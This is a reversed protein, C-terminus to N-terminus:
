SLQSQFKFLGQITFYNLYISAKQRIFKFIGVIVKPKQVPRVCFLTTYHFFLPIFFHNSKNRSICFMRLYIILITQCKHGGGWVWPYWSCQNKILCFGSILEVVRCGTLNENSAMKTHITVALVGGGGCM